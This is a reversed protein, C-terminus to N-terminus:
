QQQLIYISPIWKVLLEEETLNESVSLGDSIIDARSIMNFDERHKRIFHRSLHGTSKSAGFDQEWLKPNQSLHHAQFCLM